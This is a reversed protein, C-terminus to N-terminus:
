DIRNRRTSAARGVVLTISRFTGSPRRSQPRAVLITGFRRPPPDDAAEAAANTM